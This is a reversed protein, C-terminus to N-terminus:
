RRPTLLPEQSMVLHGSDKNGAACSCDADQCHHMESHDIMLKANKEGIIHKLFHKGAVQAREDYPYITLGEGLDNQCHTEDFGREKEEQTPAPCPGFSYLISMCAKEFLKSSGEVEKKDYTCHLEIVSTIIEVLDGHM